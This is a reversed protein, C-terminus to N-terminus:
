YLAGQPEIESIISAPLYNEYNVVDTLVIGSSKHTTLSSNIKELATKRLEQYYKALLSLVDCVKRPSLDAMKDFVKLVYIGPITIVIDFAVGPMVKARRRIAGIFHARRHITPAITTILNCTSLFDHIEGLVEYIKVKAKKDLSAFEDLSTSKYYVYLNSREITLFWTTSFERLKLLLNYLAVPELILREKSEIQIHYYAYILLSTLQVQYESFSEPLKGFVQKWCNTLMSRNLGKFRMNGLGGTLIKYFVIGKVAHYPDDIVTVNHDLADRLINTYLENRKRSIRGPSYFEILNHWIKKVLLDSSM